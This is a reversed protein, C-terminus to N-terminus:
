GRKEAADKEILEVVAQRAAPWPDLAPVLEILLPGVRDDPPRRHKPNATKGPGYRLWFKPDKRRVETEIAARVQGRAELVQQYFPGCPAEASDRGRRLWAVFTGRPVGAAEAAASLSAGGRVLAVILRAIESTLEHRDM